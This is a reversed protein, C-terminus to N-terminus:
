RVSALGFWTGRSSAECNVGGQQFSFAQVYLRFQEPLVPPVPIDCQGSPDAIAFISGAFFGGLWNNCASTVSPFPTGHAAGDTAVLVLVIRGPVVDKITIGQDGDPASPLHARPPAHDATIRPVLPVGNVYEPTGVGFRNMHGVNLRVLYLGNTEDAVYVVGSDQLRYTSFAGPYLYNWTPGGYPQGTTSYSTDVQALVEDPDPCDPRLDYVKLGEQWSSAYGAYGIGQLGMHRLPWIPYHLPAPPNSGVVTVQPPIQGLALVANQNYFAFSRMDYVDTAVDGVSVYLYKGADDMWTSHVNGGGPVSAPFACWNPPTWPDIPSGVAPLNTVDLAIVHTVGQSLYEAVFARVTGGDRQLHVDFSPVTQGPGLWGRWVALLQPAAANPGNVDYIRLGDLGPVYLHGRLKDVTLRYSTGISPLPVDPARLVTTTYPAVPSVAVRMVRLSPRFSNSEYVYQDFSATGRHVALQPDAFFWSRMPARTPGTSATRHTDVISLGNWCSLLAFEHGTGPDTHGTVYSFPAIAQGLQGEGAIGLVSARYCAGPPIPWQWARPVDNCDPNRGLTLGSLSCSTPDVPSQAALATAFVLTSFRFRM